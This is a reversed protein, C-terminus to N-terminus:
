KILTRFVRKILFKLQTLRTDRLLPFLIKPRLYFSLWAKRFLWLFQQKTLAQPVFPKKDMDLSSYDIKELGKRSKLIEKYIPTGPIPQFAYFTALHIPLTKAFKITQNINKKTEKPYGIIFNANVKIKATKRILSIQGHIDKLTMGRRMHNLIEQSGSEVGVSIMECGSAEMLKLMEKNLRDLRIGFCTWKIKIQTDILRQCFDMVLSKDYNFNDDVFVVKEVGYKEHLLRIEEIINQPTRKRIQKGNILYAACYSCKFPCGRTAIIPAVVKGRFYYSAQFQYKRPDILDWAPFGISDLERVFGRKNAIIEGNQRWILGPINALNNPKPNVFNEILIPLGIEAEGRFGYDAESFYDMLTYPSAYSPHPGGIIIKVKPMITKTISLCRKASALDTSFIKFGIADLDFYKTKLQEAFMKFNLKENNCDLINVSHGAKRLVSALYGLGLDPTSYYTSKNITNVLLVRM